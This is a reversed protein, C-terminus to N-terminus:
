LRENQLTCASLSSNLALSLMSHVIDKRTLREMLETYVM